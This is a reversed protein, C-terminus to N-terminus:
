EHVLYNNSPNGKEYKVKVKNGISCCNNECQHCFLINVTGYYEIQNVSFKFAVYEEGKGRKGLETIIGSAYEAKSNRNSIKKRESIIVTIIVILLGTFFLITYRPKLNNM